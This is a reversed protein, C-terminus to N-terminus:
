FSLFKVASTQEPTHKSLFIKKFLNKFSRFIGTSLYFLCFAFLGEGKTLILMIFILIILISKVPHAKFDKASFKPTTDYKFRSVMLLPLLICLVYVFTRSLDAPFDRNFYHLFFSAVTVASIPVPVGIFFNKDLGTLQTNFRALRLASFIMILSALAIGPGSLQYFYLKYLLYSPAAGFSIVDALSDLEVGFKSSTGTFRAVVGDFADFLAAYIIFLCAQDPNNNAANIISLFGCFLNLITFLSPVFKARNRL